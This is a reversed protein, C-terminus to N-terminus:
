DASDAATLDLAIDPIMDEQGGVMKRRDAEAHRSTVRSVALTVM